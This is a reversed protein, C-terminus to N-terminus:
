LSINEMLHLIAKEKESVEDNESFQAIRELFKEKSDFIKVTPLKYGNQGLIMKIHEEAKAYDFKDADSFGILADNACTMAYVPHCKEYSTIYLDYRMLPIEKDKLKKEIEEHLSDTCAFKQVKIFMIYNILQKGAPLLGFVAVITLLNNKNGTLIIGILLVGIPLAFFIITKILEIKIQNKFYGFDCKRIKNM